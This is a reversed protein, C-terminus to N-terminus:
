IVPFDSSRNVVHAEIVILSEAPPRATSKDCRYRDFYTHVTHVFFFSSCPDSSNTLALHYFIYFYIFTVPHSLLRYIPNTKEREARGLSHFMAAHTTPPLLQFALLTLAILPQSCAIIRRNWRRRGCTDLTSNGGGPYRDM